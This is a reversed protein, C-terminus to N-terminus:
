AGAKADQAALSARYPALGASLLLLGLVSSVLGVSLLSYPLAADDQFVYDTVFATAVPGFGIGALNVVFLYMASIQARMRPPSVIQLAAAAGAWPVSVFFMLPCFAILALTLTPMLPAIVICPILAVAAIRGTRMTADPRGKSTLWDAYWGGSLIGATAFVLVIGGLYLGAEGGTLGFKRILLAPSWAFLSNYLLALSSFGLFHCAFTRGNSTIFGFVERLPISEPGGSTAPRPPEKLLATLLAILVGPVGVAILTVQWGYLDGVAPVSYTSTDGVASVVAGGIIFALGGGLFVGINYFSLARSLTERPFMDAIMSYAAPSLAAEGVGVAVRATFLQAFNRALGCLATAISWVLIGITIIWRRSYRDAARAIPIGLATYFLAFALGHLLSFQFDSIGLDRRIPVVLLSLISRDIFSFTYAVMLVAVAYWALRPSLPAADSHGTSTM